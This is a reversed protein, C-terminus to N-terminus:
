NEASVVEEASHSHDHKKQVHLLQVNVKEITEAMNEIAAVVKDLSEATKMKQHSMHKQQLIMAEQNEMITERISKLQAVDEVLTAYEPLEPASVYTAEEDVYKAGSEGEAFIQAKKFIEPNKHHDVHTSVDGEAEEDGVM